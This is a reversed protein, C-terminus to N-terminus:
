TKLTDTDPNNSKTYQTAKSPRWPRHKSLSWNRRADDTLSGPHKGVTWPLILQKSKWDQSCSFGSERSKRGLDTAVWFESKSWLTNLSLYQVFHQCLWPSTRHSCGAPRHLLQAHPQPLMLSSPHPLIPCWSSFSQLCHGHPGFLIFWVCLSPANTQGNTVSVTMGYFKHSSTATELIFEM